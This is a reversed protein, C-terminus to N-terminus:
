PFKNHIVYKHIYTHTITSKTFSNGYQNRYENGIWNVMAKDKCKSWKLVRKYRLVFNHLEGRQTPHARGWPKRRVKSLLWLTPMQIRNGESKDHFTKQFVPETLKFVHLDRTRWVVMNAGWSVSEKCVWMCVHIFKAWSYSRCTHTHLTAITNNSKVKKLLTCTKRRIRITFHFTSKKLM